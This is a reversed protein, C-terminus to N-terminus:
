RERIRERIAREEADELTETELLVELKREFQAETLEGAAYRRRLTELPTERMGDPEAARAEDTETESESESSGWWDSWWDGGWWDDDWWERRDDDDGFLLAVIPVVVIYGFLLAALWWSQGSVLAALWFGTVLVSAIETANERLRDAPTDESM